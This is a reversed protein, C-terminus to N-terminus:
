CEFVSCGAKEEILMEYFGGRAALDEIDKAGLFDEYKVAMAESIRLGFACSVARVFRYRGKPMNRFWEAVEGL